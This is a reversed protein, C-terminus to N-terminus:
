TNSLGWGCRYLRLPAVVNKEADPRSERVPRELRLVFLARREKCTIIQCIILDILLVPHQIRMMAHSGFLYQMM